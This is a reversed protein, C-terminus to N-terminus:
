LMIIQDDIVQLDPRRAEVWSPIGDLVRQAHGQDNSVIVCAIVATQWSDNHDIEAASVNFHRHINSLLPKIRSRKEKLSRCDPLRLEITLAVVHM